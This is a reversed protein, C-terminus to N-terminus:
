AQPMEKEKLLDTLSSWVEGRESRPLCKLDKFRPDLATALKLWSLNANEKRKALDESFVRKLRVILVSDDDSPEMVRFLHWLALLVASCSM